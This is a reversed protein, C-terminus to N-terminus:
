IRLNGFLAVWEPYHRLVQKQVCLFCPRVPPVSVDLYGWSFFAIAIGLTAALSIPVAWVPRVHYGSLTTREPDHSGAPHLKPYTPSDYIQGM